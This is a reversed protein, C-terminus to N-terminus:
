GVVSGLQFIPLYLGIVLLGVVVGVVIYAAASSREGYIAVTASALKRTKDAADGWPLGGQAKVSRPVVASSRLCEGWPTGAAMTAALKEWGHRLYSNGVSQAGLRLAEDRPVGNRELFSAGDLATSAAVVMQKRQAGPLRMFVRDLWREAPPVRRFIVHRFLFLVFIVWGGGVVVDSVTVIWLTLAPLDAGFSSFVEKFAPVVLVMVGLFVIVTLWATTKQITTLYVYREDLARRQEYFRSIERLAAPLRDEPCDKLYRAVVPSAVVPENALADRLSEKELRVGLRAALKRLARLPADEAMCALAEPPAVGGELHTALMDFFPAPTAQRM